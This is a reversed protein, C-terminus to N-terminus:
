KLKSTKRTELCCSPLYTGFLLLYNALSAFEVTYLSYLITHQTCRIFYLVPSVKILSIVLPFYKGVIASIDSPFLHVMKFIVLLKEYLEHPSREFIADTELPLFKELFLQFTYGKYQFCAFLPSCLTLHWSYFHTHVRGEQISGYCM